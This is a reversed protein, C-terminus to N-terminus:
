KTTTFSVIGGDVTKGGVMAASRYYYRTGMKLGTLSFNQSDTEMNATVHKAVTTLKDPATGSEVWVETAKASYQVSVMANDMAISTPAVTIIDVVDTDMATAAGSTTAPMPMSSSAAKEKALQTQLSAQSARLDQVKQHQWYYVGGAVLALLLLVGLFKLFGQGKKPKESTFVPAPTPTTQEAPAPSSVDTSSADNVPTQEPTNTKNPQIFDSNM